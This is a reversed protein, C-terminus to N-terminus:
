EGQVPERDGVAPEGLEDLGAAVVLGLVPALAPEPPALLEPRGCGLSPPPGGVPLPAHLAQPPQDVEIRGLGDLVHAEELGLGESGPGAAAQRGLDLPLLRGLDEVGPRAIDRPAQQPKGVALHLATAISVSVIPNFGWRSRKHTTCNDGPSPLASRM